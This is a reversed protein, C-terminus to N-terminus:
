PARRISTPERPTTTADSTRRTEHPSSRGAVPSVTPNTFTATDGPRLHGIYWGASGVYSWGPPLRVSGGHTVDNWAPRAGSGLWAVFSVVDGIVRACLSWPLSRVQGNAGFVSRLDFAAIQTFGPSARTDWLHVNFIWNVGYYINKTITIARRMGPLSIVRLAAGQQNVADSQSTWTACSQQDRAPPDAIRRFAVRTNRGTNTTPAFAVTGAASVSLGYSDYWDPTLVTRALSSDVTASIVTTRCGLVANPSGGVSIGYICVQHAGAAVGPVVIDFGHASGWGSFARGIDPRNRTATGIARGIGDIYVHVAISTAADPDLAWGRVRAVGGSDPRTVTDLAGRPIGSTRICGLTINPKGGSSIAYACVNHDGTVPLTLDFGHAPGYAPMLREVDPRAGNAVGVPIGVGDTYVHIPVPAFTDPDLAWGRLKVAGPARAARELAGITSGGVFACGIQANGGDGVGIGYVCVTHAGGSIPVTVDFGHRTGLRPSMRDLDPRELDAPVSAKGAGDVYVHVFIPLTTDPDATWGSVRTAGPERRAVDLSGLPAGPTPASPASWAAPVSAFALAAVILIVSCRRVGRGSGALIELVERM